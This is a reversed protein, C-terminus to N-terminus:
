HVEPTQAVNEILMIARDRIHNRGTGFWADIDEDVVDLDRIINWFAVTDKISVGDSSDEYGFEYPVPDQVGWAQMEQLTNPKPANPNELMECVM